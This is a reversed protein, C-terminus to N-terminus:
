GSICRDLRIFRYGRAWATDILMDAIDVVREKSQNGDHLLIIAGPRVGRLIRQIVLDAPVNTTDFGRATWGVVKLGLECAVRFVRPNSLGMPPRYFVPRCGTAHMIEEQARSTDRRLRDLGFLNTFNSHGFSHNGILHGESVIRAALAPHKRVAAGTCFFAAQVGKQKLLDLLAPTAEPDPGDDFTLALVKEKTCIRCIGPGFLQFSLSVVGFTLICLLSLAILGILALQIVGAGSFAALVALLLAVVILAQFKTRKRHM